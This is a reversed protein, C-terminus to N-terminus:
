KLFVTLDNKELHYKKLILNILLPGVIFLLFIQWLKFQYGSLTLFYDYAKFLIITMFIISVVKFFGKWTITIKKNKPRKINLFEKQQQITKIEIKRLKDLKKNTKILTKRKKLSFLSIFYISYYVFFSIVLLNILNM